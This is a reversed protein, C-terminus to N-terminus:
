TGGCGVQILCVKEFYRHMGNAETDIAVRPADRLTDTLRALDEPNQIYGYDAHGESAPKEKM